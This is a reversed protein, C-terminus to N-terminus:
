VEDTNNTSSRSLAKVTGFKKAIGQNRVCVRLLQRPPDGVSRNKAELEIKLIWKEKKLNDSRQNTNTAKDVLPKTNKCGQLKEFEELVVANGAKKAIIWLTNELNELPPAKVVAYNLVGPVLNFLEGPTAFSIFNEEM